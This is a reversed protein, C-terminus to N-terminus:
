LLQICTSRCTQKEVSEKYVETKSLNSFHNAEPRWVKSYFAIETCKVTKADYYCYYICSFNWIPHGIAMKSILM